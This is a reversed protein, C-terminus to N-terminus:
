RAHPASARLPRPRGARLRQSGMVGAAITSARPATGRQGACRRRRLDIVGSGRGPLPHPHFGTGHFGAGRRRGRSSRPGLRPCLRDGRDPLSRRAPRVLADGGTKGQHGLAGHRHRVHRQEVSAREALLLQGCADVLHGRHRAGLARRGAAEPVARDCHRRGSPRQTFTACGLGYLDPEDTEIKVVVLRIGEPATLIVRVDRIRPGGADGHDWPPPLLPAPRERSSVHDPM